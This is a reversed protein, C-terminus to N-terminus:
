VGNAGFVGTFGEGGSEFGVFVEAVVDGDDKAAGVAEGFGEFGAGVEAKGEGGKGGGVVESMEEEKLLEVARARDIVFHRIM